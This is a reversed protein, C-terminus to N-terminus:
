SILGFVLFYSLCLVLFLSCIYTMFGVGCRLMVSEASWLAGCCEVFSWLVGCCAVAHRLMGCHEAASQMM